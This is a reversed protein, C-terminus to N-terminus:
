AHFVFFTQEDTSVNTIHIDDADESLNKTLVNMSVNERWNDMYEELLIADNLIEDSIETEIAGYVHYSLTVKAM